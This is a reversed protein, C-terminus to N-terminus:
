ARLGRHEELGLEERMQRTREVIRDHASLRNAHSRRGLRRAALRTFLRAIM